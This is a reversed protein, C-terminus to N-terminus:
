TRSTEATSSLGNSSPDKMESEMLCKSLAMMERRSIRLVRRHHWDQFVALGRAERLDMNWIESRYTGFSWMYIKLM